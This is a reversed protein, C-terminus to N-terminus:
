HARGQAEARYAQCGGGADDPRHVARGLVAPSLPVVLPRPGIWFGLFHSHRLMTPEAPVRWGAALRECAQRRAHGACSAPTCRPPWGRRPRTLLREATRPRPCRATTFSTPTRGGLSPCAAASSARGRGGSSAVVSGWRAAHVDHTYTHLDGAGRAREAGGDAAVESDGEGKGGGARPRAAGRQLGPVLGGGPQRDHARTM